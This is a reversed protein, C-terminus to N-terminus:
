SPTSATVGALGFESFGAILVDAETDLTESVEFTPDSSVTTPMRTTRACSVLENSSRCTTGPRNTVGLATVCDKQM